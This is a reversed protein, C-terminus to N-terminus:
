PKRSRWITSSSLTGEAVPNRTYARWGSSRARVPAVQSFGSWLILSARKLRLQTSQRRRDNESWIDRDRRKWQFIVM